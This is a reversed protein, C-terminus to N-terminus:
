RFRSELFKVKATHACGGFRYCGNCIAYVKATHVNARVDVRKESIM